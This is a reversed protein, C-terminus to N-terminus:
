SLQSEGLAAPMGVEDSPPGIGVEDSTPGQHQQRCAAAGVGPPECVWRTLPPDKISWGVLPLGSVRHDCVWRTLPPDKISSGVLPLGSGPQECVWRERPPYSMRKVYVQRQIIM